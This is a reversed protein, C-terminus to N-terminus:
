HRNFNILTFGPCVAHKSFSLQLLHSNQCFTCTQCISTRPLEQTLYLTDSDELIHTQTHLDQSSLQQLFHPFWSGSLCVSLSLSVRIGISVYLDLGDDLIGSSVQTHTQSNQPHQHHFPGSYLLGKWALYILNMRDAHVYTCARLNVLCRRWSLLANLSRLRKPPKERCTCLTM